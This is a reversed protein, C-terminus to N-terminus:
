HAAVGSALRLQGGTATSIGFERSMEPLIPALVLFGSQAAFMSVFLVAAAQPSRPRDGKIKLTAKRM